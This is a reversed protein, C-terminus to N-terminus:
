GELLSRMRGEAAESRGTEHLSLHTKVIISLIFKNVNVEKEFLKFKNLGQKIETVIKM